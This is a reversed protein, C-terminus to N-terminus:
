GLFISINRYFYQVRGRVIATFQNRVEPALEIASLSEGVFADDVDVLQVAVSVEVKERHLEEFPLKQAAHQSPQMGRCHRPGRAQAMM